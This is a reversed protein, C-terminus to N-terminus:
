NKIIKCCRPTCDEVGKECCSDPCTTLTEATLRDDNNTLAFFGGALSVAVLTVILRRKMETRKNTVVHHVTPLNRVVLAVTRKRVKRLVAACLQTTGPRAVRHQMPQKQYRM